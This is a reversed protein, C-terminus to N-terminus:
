LRGQNALGVFAELSRIKVLGGYRLHEDLRGSLYFDRLTWGDGGLVLYADSFKGDSTRIAHALCMVEYPIKEEATGGVQQWKLSILINRGESDTALVDVLHRKGSPRLGINANSACEYRGLMLAPIVM